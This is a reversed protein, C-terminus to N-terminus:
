TLRLADFREPATASVYTSELFVIGWGGDALRLYRALARESVVGGPAADNAEM